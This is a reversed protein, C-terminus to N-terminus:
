RSIIRFYRGPDLPSLQVFASNGSTILVLDSKIWAAKALGPTEQLEYTAGTVIPFELLVYGSPLRSIQLTTGTEPSSPDDDNRIVLEVSASKILAGSASKLELQLREDPEFTKDAIVPVSVVKSQENPLFRLTGSVPLFDIGSQATIGFTEFQVEVPFAAKSSLSVTFSANTMGSNGELVSAGAATVFPYDDDV